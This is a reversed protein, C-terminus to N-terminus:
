ERGPSLSEQEQPHRALRTAIRDWHSDAGPPLGHSPPGQPSGTASSNEPSLSEPPRDDASVPPSITKPLPCLAVCLLVKIGPLLAITLAVSSTRLCKFFFNLLQTAR